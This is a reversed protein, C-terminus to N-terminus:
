WRNMSSDGFKYWYHLVGKNLDQQKQPYNIKVEMTVNLDFKVMNHTQVRSWEDNISILIELKPCFYM